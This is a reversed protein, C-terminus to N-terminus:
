DMSQGSNLAILMMEKYGAPNLEAFFYNVPDMVEGNFIVEYHLHPAFSLGSNGVRAIVVGRKVVQGERVFIEGLHAYYTEFGGEHIIRIQNGRDRDSKIVKHVKGDATAIVEAGIGPLLDIGTHDNMTKYFPHIKKGVGAGTQATTLNKVPLISPISLLGEKNKLTNYISEIKKIQESALFDTFKVRDSTFNVLILDSSTDLQKYLKQNYGSLFGPPTSKFISMYIEYDRKQLDSIVNDLVDLKDVATEYQSVLMKNERILREEARTNFLSAFVIYYLIALLLSGLAYKFFLAIRGKLGLREEVFKLQDRNFRYKSM